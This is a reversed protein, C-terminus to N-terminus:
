EGPCLMHYKNELERYYATMRTAIEDWEAPYTPSIHLTYPRNDQWTADWFFTATDWDLFIGASRNAGNDALGLNAFNSIHEVGTQLSVHAERWCAEVFHEPSPYPSDLGLAAPFRMHEWFASKQPQQSPCLGAYKAIYQPATHVNTRDAEEVEELWEKNVYPLESSPPYQPVSPTEAEPSVPAAVFTEALPELEPESTSPPVDPGAEELPQQVEVPQTIVPNIIANAAQGVTLAVAVTALTHALVSSLGQYFLTM